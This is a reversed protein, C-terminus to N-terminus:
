VYDTVNVLNKPNNNTIIRIVNEIAENMSEEIFGKGGVGSIHPTFITNPLRHVGTRTEFTEKGDYKWWVDSGYRISPREKLVKYLAEEDVVDGRGVNVVISDDKLKSLREYNFLKYTYKNLPLTIVVIDFNGLKEFAVESSLVEDFFEPKNGSRNVGFNYNKFSKSIRAVAKGIGGTGFILVKSGNVRLPKSYIEELYKQRDFTINNLGKSLALILAWAFEACQESYAGANSYVLVDSPIEKFPIHDVGASLTQIAKIKKMKSIEKYNFDQGWTILVEAKSLVEDKNLVEGLYFYEAYDKLKKVLTEPLRVTSVVIPKEM